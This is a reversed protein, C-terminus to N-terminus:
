IKHTRICWLWLGGLVRVLLGGVCGVTRLGVLVNLGVGRLARYMPYDYESSEMAIPSINM